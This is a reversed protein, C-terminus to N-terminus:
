GPEIAAPSSARTLAPAIAAISGAACAALVFAVGSSRDYVPLWLLPAVATGAFKFAAFVSVVGARNGPVAEIALTNLGAWLPASGAGAAVWLAGYLWAPRAVGLPAVAVACAVAAIAAARAAGLRDALDGGARGLLMAAAGFGALLVGRATSGLGFADVARLSVLFVLGNMGVYGAFGALYLLGLRRGVLSQFSPRRGLPGAAPPPPVSVLVLAVLAPVVFALRWSIEAALGGLLPALSIGGAQVAAFTGVARGRQSAPVLEALGALLIPTTFANAVGQGARCALFVGIGPAVAAGLSAIAYMLYAVRVVRRRGIREGLTGSVLQLGAFPVLYAPVALAVETVSAHFASQLEPILVALVAGGFPGLFGGVYLPLSSPQHPRGPM